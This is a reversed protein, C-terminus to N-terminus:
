ILPEDNAHYGPIGIVVVHPGVKVKLGSHEVQTSDLSKFTVLNPNAVPEFYSEVASGHQPNFTSAVVPTNDNAPLTTLPEHPIRLRGHAIVTPYLETKEVSVSLLGLLVVQVSLKRTEVVKENGAMLRGVITHVIGAIVLPFVPSPAIRGTM